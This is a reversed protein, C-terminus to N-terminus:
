GQGSAPRNEAIWRRAEDVTRCVRTRVSSPEAYLEWMRLMGFVFDQQGVVALLMAPNARAADADQLALTRVQEASLDIDTADSYDCIQYAIKRIQDPSAYIRHNANAVDDFTVCGSGKFVVGGDDLFTVDIPM